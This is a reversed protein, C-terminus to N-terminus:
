CEGVLLMKTIVGKLTLIEFIYEWIDSSSLTRRGKTSANLLLWPDTADQLFPLIQGQWGEQAEQQQVSKIGAVARQKM